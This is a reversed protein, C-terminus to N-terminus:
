KIEAMQQVWISTLAPPEFHRSTKNFSSTVELLNSLRFSPATDEKSICGVFPLGRSSDVSQSPANAIGASRRTRDEIRRDAAVPQSMSIANTWICALQITNGEGFFYSGDALGISLSDHSNIFRIKLTLGSRASTNGLASKFARVKPVPEEHQTEKWRMSCTIEGRARSYWIDEFSM